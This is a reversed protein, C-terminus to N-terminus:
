YRLAMVAHVAGLVLLAISLPVHVLLWGHLWRYLRTQRNLQREEECINELDELRPHVINPLMRRFSQFVSGAKRDDGLESGPAGPNVLFPRITVLYADRFRERDVEDV